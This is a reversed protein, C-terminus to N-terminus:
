LAITSSASCAAATTSATTAYSGASGTSPSGPECHSRCAAAAPSVATGSNKASRAYVGCPRSTDRRSGPATSCSGAATASRHADQSRVPVTGATSPDGTATAARDTQTCPSV